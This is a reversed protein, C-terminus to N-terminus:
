FRGQRVGRLNGIIGVAFLCVGTALYPAWLMVDGWDGRLILPNFGFWGVCPSVLVMVLNLYRPREQLGGLALLLLPILHAVFFLALVTWALAKREIGLYGLLGSASFLLIVSGAPILFAGSILGLVQFLWELRAM